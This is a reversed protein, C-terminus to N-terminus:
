IEQNIKQPNKEERVHVHMNAWQSSRAQVKGLNINSNQFFFIIKISGIKEDKCVVVFGFVLNHYPTRTYKGCEELIKRPNKKM